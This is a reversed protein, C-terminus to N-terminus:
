EGETPVDEPLSIPADGTGDEDGQAPVIAPLEAAESAPPTAPEEISVEDLVSKGSKQTLFVLALSTCIFLVAAITTARTLVNSTGRPGFVTQTGGGGFASALDGGKGTQLLVVLVLFFSVIIHVTVVIAYLM